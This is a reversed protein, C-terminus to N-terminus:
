TSWSEFFTQPHPLGEIDLVFIYMTLHVNNFNRCLKIEAGGLQIIFPIKYEEKNQEYIEGYTFM